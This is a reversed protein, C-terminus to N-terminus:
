KKKWEAACPPMFIENIKGSASCANPNVGGRCHTATQQRNAKNYPVITITGNGSM